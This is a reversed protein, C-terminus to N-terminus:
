SKIYELQKNATNQPFLFPCIYVSNEAGNVNYKALKELM